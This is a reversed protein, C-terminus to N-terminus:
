EEIPLDKAFNLYIEGEGDFIKDGDLEYARKLEVSALEKRDNDYAAQGRRLHLYPMEDALPHEMITEYLKLAEGNKGQYIHNDAIATMIELYDGQEEKPTRLEALAREYLVIAKNYNGYDQQKDAKEILRDVTM